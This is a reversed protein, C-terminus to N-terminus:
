SKFNEVKSERSKELRSKELMIGCYMNELHITIKMTRSSQITIMTIMPSM